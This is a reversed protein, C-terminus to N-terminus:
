HPPVHFQRAEGKRAVRKPAVPERCVEVRKRGVLPAHGGCGRVPRRAYPSIVSASQVRRKRAVCAGVKESIATRFNHSLRISDVDFFKRFHLALRDRMAVAEYPIDEHRYSIFIKSM